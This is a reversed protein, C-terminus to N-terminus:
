WRHGLLHWSDIWFYFLVNVLLVMTAVFREAASWMLWSDRNHTNDFHAREEVTMRSADDVTFDSDPTSRPDTGPAKIYLWIVMAILGKCLVISVVPIALFWRVRPPPVNRHWTEIAGGSVKRYIVPRLLLLFLSNALMCLVMFWSPLEELLNDHSFAACNSNLCIYFLFSPTAFFAWALLVLANFGVFAGFFGFQVQKLEYWHLRRFTACPAPSLFLFKVQGEFNTGFAALVKRDARCFVHREPYVCVLEMDTTCSSMERFTLGQRPTKMKLKM